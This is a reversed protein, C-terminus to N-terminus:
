LIYVAGFPNHVALGHLGESEVWIGLFEPNTVAITQNQRSVFCNFPLDHMAFFNRVEEAPVPNISSAKLLVQWANWELEAPSFDYLPIKFRGNYVTTYLAYNNGAIVPMIQSDGDYIPVAGYPLVDHYFCNLLSKQDQKLYKTTTEVLITRMKAKLINSDNM